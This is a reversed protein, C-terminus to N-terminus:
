TVNDEIAQLQELLIRLQKRERPWQIMSLCDDSSGQPITFPLRIRPLIQSNPGTQEGRPFCIPPIHCQPTIVVANTSGAKSPPTPYKCRWCIAAMCNVKHSPKPERCEPCADPMPDFDGIINVRQLFLSADNALAQAIEGYKCQHPHKSIAIQATRGLREVLYSGILNEHEKWAYTAQWRNHLMSWSHLFLLFVEGDYRAYHVGDSPVPHAYQIEKVVQNLRRVLRNVIARRKRIFDPDTPRDLASAGWIVMALFLLVILLTTAGLLVAALTQFPKDTADSLWYFAAVIAIIAGVAGGIMGPLDQRELRRAPLLGTLVLAASTMTLVPAKEGHPMESLLTALIVLM